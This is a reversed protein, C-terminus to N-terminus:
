SNYSGYGLSFAYQLFWEPLDIYHDTSFHWGVGNAWAETTDLQATNRDIQYVTNLEPHENSSNGMFREPQYKKFWTNSQYLERWAHEVMLIDTVQMVEEGPQGIGTNAIVARLQNKALTYLERYYDSKADDLFNYVQDYFIGDVDQRLYEIAEAKVEEVPRNGYNTDVYAFIRVGADRFLERVQPSLNLYKPEFTYFSALLLDPKAAAILRAYENPTGSPDAILWGYYIVFLNKGKIFRYKAAPGTVLENM